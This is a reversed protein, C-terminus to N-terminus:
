PLALAHIFKVGTPNVETNLTYWPKYTGMFTGDFVETLNWAAAPEIHLDQLKISVRSPGGSINEYLLVLAFSGRPLIPKRWVKVQGM